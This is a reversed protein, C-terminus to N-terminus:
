RNWEELLAALEDDSLGDFDPAGAIMGDDWLWAEPLPEQVAVELPDERGANRQSWIVGTGLALFILAAASLAWGPAWRSPTRLPLVRSSERAQGGSLETRIREKIAGELGAPAAPRARDLLRIVELEGSCEQCVPLHAEVERAEELPLVGSAFDPLLERVRDCRKESM